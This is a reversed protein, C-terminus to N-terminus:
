DYYAIYSAIVGLMGIYPFLAQLSTASHVHKQTRFKSVLGEDIRRILYILSLELCDHVSVDKYGRETRHTCCCSYIGYVFVDGGGTLTEGHEYVAFNNM